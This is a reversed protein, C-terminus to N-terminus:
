YKISNILQQKITEDIISGTSENFNICSKISKNYGEKIFWTQPTFDDKLYKHYNKCKYAIPCDKGKCPLICKSM